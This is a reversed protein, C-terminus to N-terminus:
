SPSAGIGQLQVQQPSNPASDFVQFLEDLPGTSQPEFSVWWDCSQGNKLVSNCTTNPVDFDDGVTFGEIYLKKGSQNYLTVVSSPSSQDITITGFDLTSPALWVLNGSEFAGIDCATEAPSAPDPRPAGRQDTAPCLDIPVVDIAPSDPQLAITETPGGNHKLGSPSLLPNEHAFSGGCTLDDSINYFGSPITGGCNGGPTSQSLISNNVAASGKYNEIGGGGYASNHSLTSNTVTLTGGDNYIGGGYGGAYASNDAFTSNTVTLTGGDNCIGGGYSASNSGFTSNTVTLNPATGEIGGGYSASNKFFSSNTVSLTGDNFIGGGNDGASNDSFTGNTVSLTGDNHIGGGNDAASNGSFTSNTVTLTSSEDNFIGGGGDAYNGSFTTNTVTLTGSEENDIGGSYAGSNDSFTSNTVTLAGGYNLIGGGGEASNDSFTSSAVTLAGGYNEIGGGYDASNHSLTSNTVTLTGGFNLIGGGVESTSGDAITLKNLNLTAGVDVALVQYKGFGSVTIKQGAGDITLTNKIEPLASGLTITGSFTFVITDNGNGVACVGGTTDVGPSNANNIAGRLSCRLFYGPDHITNVTITNAHLASPILVLWVPVLMLLMALSISPRESATAASMRSASARECTGEFWWQSSFNKEAM